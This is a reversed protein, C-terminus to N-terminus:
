VGILNRSGGGGGGVSRGDARSCVSASISGLSAFIRSSVCGFLVGGPACASLTYLCRTSSRCALAAGKFGLASCRQVLVVGGSVLSRTARCLQPIPPSVWVPPSIFSYLHDSATAVKNNYSTSMKRNGSICGDASVLSTGSHEKDYIIICLSFSFWASACATGYVSM